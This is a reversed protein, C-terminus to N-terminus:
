RPHRVVAVRSHRSFTELRVTPDNVVHFTVYGADTEADGAMVHTVAGRRDVLVGVQRGIERSLEADRQQAPTFSKKESM